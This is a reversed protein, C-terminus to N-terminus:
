VSTGIMHALFALGFGCCFTVANLILATSWPVNSLRFLKLSLFAVSFVMLFLGFFLFPFILDVWLM